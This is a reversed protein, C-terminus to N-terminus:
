VPPLPTTWATPRGIPYHDIASATIKNLHGSERRIWHHGSRDTFGIEVGFMGGMVTGINKLKVSYMGPPLSGLVVAVDSLRDCDLRVWEEGTHPAAGQTFVQFVVVEYVLQSSANCLNM